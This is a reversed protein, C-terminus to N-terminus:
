RSAVDALVVGDPQDAWTATLAIPPRPGPTPRRHFRLEFGDNAATVTTGSADGVIQFGDVAVRDLGWGGGQIRVNTPAVVWRGDVEVMGLAEGQGTMTVAALMTLYRHDGLGDYVVRTGLASHHIEGILAAEAGPLPENRYTLPVHLLVGDASVLMTEMGVLYEPDDFRFAGVVEVSADSSPCWAQTPVWAALLEPKSPTITAKHFLGM